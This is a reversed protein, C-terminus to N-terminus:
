NSKPLPVIEITKGLAMLVKVVTDFHPSTAGAEMRSIVPQKVGSLKELERQSIGRENRAKILESMVAVRIDSEKIEEPTYLEARVEEWTQGRPSIPSSM